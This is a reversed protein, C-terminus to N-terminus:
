MFSQDEDWSPEPLEVNSWWKEIFEECTIPKVDPFARNLDAPVMGWGQAFALRAQNYFKKGPNQMQAKMEDISNEKTLLERRQVKEVIGVIDRFSKVDGRMGLEQPWQKLDLSHFVFTAVDRMDTWTLETSGDGPLDATGAKMNIVFNWPRLGALAEQEGSGLGEQKGVETMPKPTGTALTSMFLGCAFRTYELGSNQTATWVEAKPQYLDIGDYRTGAYESPAFRKVGAEKAAELLSLQANRLAVPEGGIVSLLTHVGTLAQVLQAANGYDVPRVDVGRAALDPQPSRSLLIIKHKGDNLQHFVRLMTLGFGSSAGALAVRVM